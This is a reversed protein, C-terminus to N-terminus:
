KTSAYLSLPNPITYISCTSPFVIKSFQQIMIRMKNTDKIDGYIFKVKKLFYPEDLLNDYVMVNWEDERSLLLTTLAKGVVLIEKKQVEKM